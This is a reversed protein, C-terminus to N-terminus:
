PGQVSRIYATIADTSERDFRFMPMDQHGTLLGDRLRQALDAIDMRDQLIRFPPAAAHPSDGTRGIAHCQACMREAIASGRQPFSEAALPATAALHLAVLVITITVRKMTTVPMLFPIEPAAVARPM